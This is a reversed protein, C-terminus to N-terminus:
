NSDKNEANDNTDEKKSNENNVEDTKNSNLDENSSVEDASGDTNNLGTNGRTYRWDSQSHNVNALERNCM